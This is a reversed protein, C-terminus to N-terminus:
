KLEQFDTVTFASTDESGYGRHRIAIRQPYGYVPDYSVAVWLVRANVDQEIVGFLQEIPALDKYLAIPEPRGDSIRTIATVIGKQVDVQVRTYPCLCSPTFTYRYHLPQHQSWHARNDRLAWQTPIHRAVYLLSCLGILGLVSIGVLRPRLIRM